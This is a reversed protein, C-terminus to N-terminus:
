RVINYRARKIAGYDDREIVEMTISKIPQKGIADAARKFGATIAEAFQAMDVDVNVIPAPPSEVHIVPAVPQPAPATVPAAPERKRSESFDDLEDLSRLRIPKAV